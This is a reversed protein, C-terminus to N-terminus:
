EDPAVGIVHGTQANALYDNRTGKTTWRVRYVTRGNWQELGADLERGGIRNRLKKVVM